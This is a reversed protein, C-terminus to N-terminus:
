KEIYKKDEVKKNITNSIKSVIFGAHTKNIPPMQPHNKDNQENSTVSIINPSLKVM